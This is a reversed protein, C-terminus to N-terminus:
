HRGNLGSRNIRDILDDLKQEIRELRLRHPESDKKHEELEGHIKDIDDKLEQNETKLHRIEYYMWVAMSVLMCVGVVLSGDVFQLLEM